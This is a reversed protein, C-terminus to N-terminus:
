DYGAGFWEAVQSDDLDLRISIATGVVPRPPLGKQSKAPASLFARVQQTATHRRSHPTPHHCSLPHSSSSLITSSTIVVPNHIVHHRCPQRRNWGDTM